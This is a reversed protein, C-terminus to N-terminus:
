FLSEHETCVVKHQLAEYLDQIVGLTRGAAWLTVILDLNKCKECTNQNMQM